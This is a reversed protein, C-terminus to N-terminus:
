VRSRRRSCAPPATPTGSSRIWRSGSTRAARRLARPIASACPTRGARPEDPCPSDQGALLQELLDPPVLVEALGPRDVDV